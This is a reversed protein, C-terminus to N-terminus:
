RYNKRDSVNVILKKVNQNHNNEVVWHVDEVVYRSDDYSVTEGERPVDPCQFTGVVDGSGNVLEVIM